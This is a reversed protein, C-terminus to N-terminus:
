YKQLLLYFLFFYYMSKGIWLLTDPSLTWKRLSFGVSLGITGGIFTLIVLLNTNMCQKCSGRQPEAM